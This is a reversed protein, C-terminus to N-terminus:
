RTRHVSLAVVRSSTQQSCQMITANIFLARSQDCYIALYVSQSPRIPM